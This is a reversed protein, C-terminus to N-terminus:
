QPPFIRVQDSSPGAMLRWLGGVPDWTYGFSVGSDVFVGNQHFQVVTAAIASGAPVADFVPYLPVFLDALELGLVVDQATAGTCYASGRIFSVGAFQCDVALQDTVPVPGAMGTVHLAIGPGIVHPAGLFIAM